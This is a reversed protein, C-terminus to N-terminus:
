RIGSKSNECHSGVILDRIRGIILLVLDFNLSSMITGVKVVLNLEPYQSHAAEFFFTDEYLPVVISPVTCRGHKFTYPISEEALFSGSKITLLHSQGDKDSHHINEDVVGDPDVIEFDINELQGGAICFDPVQFDYMKNKIHFLFICMNLVILLLLM